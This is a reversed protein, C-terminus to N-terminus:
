REFIVSSSTPVEGFAREIWRAREAKDDKEALCCCPAGSVGVSSASITSAWASKGGPISRGSSKLSAAPSTYTERAREYRM